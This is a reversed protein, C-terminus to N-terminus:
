YRVIESGPPRLTAPASAIWSNSISTSRSPLEGAVGQTGLFCQAALVGMGSAGGAAALFGRKLDGKAELGRAPEGALGVAAAGSETGSVGV